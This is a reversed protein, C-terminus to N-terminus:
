GPRHIDIEAEVGRSALEKRLESAVIQYVRRRILEPAIGILRGAYRSNNRALDFPNLVDIILRRRNDGLEPVNPTDASGFEAEYAAIKASLRRLRRSLLLLFVVLTILILAALVALAIQTMM